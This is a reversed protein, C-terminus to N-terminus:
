LRGTVFFRDRGDDGRLKLGRYGSHLWGGRFVHATAQPKRHYGSMVNHGRAVVEGERGPPSPKGDTDHIDVDNTDIPLGVSPVDHDRLWELNEHWDLTTPLFCSFCAAEPIGYGHVIKLGFREQFATAAAATLPQSRCIFHRFNPVREPEFEEEADLLRELQPPLVSVIGVDHAAVRRWFGQADFREHVVVQAKAFAPTLLTLIIDSPRPLPLVNMVVTSADIDHWRSLGYAAAFLQKQTLVVGPRLGDAAPRYILMADTDWSPGRRRSADAPAADALAATFDDWGAVLVRSGGADFVVTRQLGGKGAQELAADFPDLSSRCAAFLILLEADCTSLIAAIREDSLDPGIPVLRAGISWVGFYIAATLPQNIAVVAVNQGPSVAYETSLVYAVRGVMEAFAGFTVVQPEDPAQASYYTMWAHDARETALVSWLHAVNRYPLVDDVNPLAECRHAQVVLETVAAPLPTPTQNADQLPM